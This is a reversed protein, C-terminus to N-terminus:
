ENGQRQKTTRRQPTASTRRTRKTAAPAWRLPLKTQLQMWTIADDILIVPDASQVYAHKQPTLELHQPDNSELRAWACYVPVDAYSHMYDDNADRALIDLPDHGQITVIRETITWSPYDGNMTGAPTLVLTFGNTLRIRIATKDDPADIDLDLPRLRTLLFARDIHLALDPAFRRLEIDSINDQM